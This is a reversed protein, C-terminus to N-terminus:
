GRLYRYVLKKKKTKLGVENCKKILKQYRNTFSELSENEEPKIEGWEHDMAEKDDFGSTAGIFTHSTEILKLLETVNGEAVLDDVKCEHYKDVRLQSSEQQCLSVFTTLKGKYDNNWSDVKKKHEERNKLEIAIEFDGQPTIM